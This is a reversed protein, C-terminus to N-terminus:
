KDLRIFAHPALLPEMHWTDLCNPASMPLPMHIGHRVVPHVQSTHRQAGYWCTIRLTIHSREPCLAHIAKILYPDATLAHLTAAEYARLLMAVYDQPGELNPFQLWALADKLDRWVREIPNLEPGYPPLCVRPARTGAPHAM